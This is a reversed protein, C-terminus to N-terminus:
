NKTKKLNYRQFWSSLPCKQKQASAVCKHCASYLLCGKGKLEYAINIADEYTTNPDTTAQEYELVSMVFEHSMDLQNEAIYQEIQLAEEKTM